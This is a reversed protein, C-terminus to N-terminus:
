PVGASRESLRALGRASELRIDDGVGEDAAISGFAEARSLPAFQSLPVSTARHGATRRRPMSTARLGATRRRPMSTARLGATRGTVVIQGTVV